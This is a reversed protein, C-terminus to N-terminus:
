RPLGGGPFRHAGRIRPAVAPAAAGEFFVLLGLIGLVPIDALLLYGLERCTSERLAPHLAVGGPLAAVCTCFLPPGSRLPMATM